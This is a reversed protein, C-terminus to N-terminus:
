YLYLFDAVVIKMSFSSSATVNILAKRQQQQCQKRIWLGVVHACAPVCVLVKIQKKVMRNM